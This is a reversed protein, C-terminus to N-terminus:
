VLGSPGRIRWNGFDPTKLDKWVKDRTGVAQVVALMEYSWIRSVWGRGVRRLEKDVFIRDTDIGFSYKSDDRGLM